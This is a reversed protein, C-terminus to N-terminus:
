NQAIAADPAIVPVGVTLYTPGSEKVLGLKQALLIQGKPETLAFYRNKLEANAVRLQEVQKTVDAMLHRASVTQNYAFVAVVGGLVVAVILGNVVANLQRNRNPQTITM